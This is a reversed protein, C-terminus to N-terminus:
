DRDELPRCPNILNMHLSTENSHCESLACISAQRTAHNDLIRQKLAARPLTILPFTKPRRKVVRPEFHKSRKPQSDTAITRFLKQRLSRWAECTGQAMEAAFRLTADLAGKFSLRM